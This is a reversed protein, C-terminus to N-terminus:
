CGVTGASQETLRAADIASYDIDADHSTILDSVIKGTLPAYHVGESWHGAAIYINDWGPAQGVYPKGDAPMPRLCATHHTVSSATIRETLRQVRPLIFDWANQSPERDYGNSEKTAGLVTRSLRRPLIVGGDDMNHMGANPKDQEIGGVDTDPLHMYLLQGKQPEVPVRYGLWESAINSWPGMAVVVADASIEMGDDLLIGTAKGGSTALGSATGSQLRAGSLAAARFASQTLLGSDVTPEILTACAGVVEDRLWDCLDRAEDGSLWEAELGESIRNNMFQQAADFGPEEFACRLYPQLNYGHDIGTIDQLVDALEAHLELSAASLALLGPDNSGSYPTLIGASYGSAGSAIGEREVVVIDSVGSRTLYYATLCGIVGGGLVVVRSTSTSGPTM